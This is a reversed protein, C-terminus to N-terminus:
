VVSQYLPMASNSNPNPNTNSNPNPNPDTTGYMSRFNVIKLLIQWRLQDTTNLCVRNKEM